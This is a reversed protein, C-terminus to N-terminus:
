RWGGPNWLCFKATSKTPSVRLWVSERPARGSSLPSQSVSTLVCENGGGSDALPFQPFARYWTLTNQGSGWYGNRESVKAKGWACMVPISTIKDQIKRKNKKVNFFNNHHFVCRMFSVMKMMKLHVMWRCEPCECQQAVTVVTCRRKSKLLLKRSQRPHQSSAKQTPEGM